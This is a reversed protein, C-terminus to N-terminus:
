VDGLENSEEDSRRSWILEVKKTADYIHYVLKWDKQSRCRDCGLRAKRCKSCGFNDPVSYDTPMQCGTNRLSKVVRYRLSGGSGGVAAAGGKRGGNGIRTAPKVITKLCKISGKEGKCVNPTAAAVQPTTRDEIALWGPM